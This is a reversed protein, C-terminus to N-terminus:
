FEKTPPSQWLPFTKILSRGAQLVPDLKLVLSASCFDKGSKSSRSGWQTYSGASSVQSTFLSHVPQFDIYKKLSHISGTVLFLTTMKCLELHTTHKKLLNMVPLFHVPSPKGMGHLSYRTFKWWTSAPCVLQFESCIGIQPAPSPVQFGLHQFLCHVQLQLSTCLWCAGKEDILSVELYVHLPDPHMNYEM